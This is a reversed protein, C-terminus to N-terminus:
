SSLFNTANQPVMFKMVRNVFAQRQIMVQVLNISYRIEKFGM